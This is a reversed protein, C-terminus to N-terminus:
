ALDLVDSRHINAYMTGNNWIFRLTMWTMTNELYQVSHCRFVAFVWSCVFFSFFRNARQMIVCLGPWVHVIYIMKSVSTLDTSTSVGCTSAGLGLKSLVFYFMGSRKLSPTAKSTKDKHIPFLSVSVLQNIKHFKSVDVLSLFSFECRLTSALM